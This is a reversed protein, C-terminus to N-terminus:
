VAAVEHQTPAAAAEPASGPVAGLVFLLEDIAMPRGCHYGQAVPCGYERLVAFTDANEVGEAVTTLNLTVALDIVARVIAAARQDGTIPVVFSRDLKVTDIPLERLYSLASYGTGFDDIAIQVGLSHLEDLVKGARDMNGLLFDETIEVHIASPSLGRRALEDAIRAPLDLDGLSPPFLNVAVPIACGLEHWRAADDLAQDLVVATMRHMLGNQQVIPLFQNPFLLGREPHEWRVLAEVAVIAGTRIDVQPQYHVSLSRETIASRLQELLRMGDRTNDRGSPDIVGPIYVHIAADHRKARYMAIDAHRLLTGIDVGHAPSLAIGVSAGIQVHLGELQVPEFLVEQVREAAGRAEREDANPILIAFEDGGLRVLVDDERLARRLRTAIVRLLDDGAAHGLSDNVDKFHDLDLLLLAATPFDEDESIPTYVLKGAHEYFGRRNPLGTLDDTRALQAHEGARRIEHFALALRGMSAIITAAALYWAAPTIQFYNDLVSMSVAVGTAVLPAALPPTRQTYDIVPHWTRSPALATVAVALIFAADVYDGSRYGGTPAEILYLSDALAALALGLGMWWLGAPPRWRFLACATLVAALLVVDLVPYALNVVIAAFSGGLQALVAPFILATTVTATGLGVLLADLALSLTFRRLRARVILLLSVFVCLYFGLWFGDAITPYPEPHLPRVFWSWYTNAIAQCLLGLALIRWAARDFAARPTRVLCLVACAAFALNQWVGDILWSYDRSNRLPPLTTVLFSGIVVLLAGQALARRRTLAAM